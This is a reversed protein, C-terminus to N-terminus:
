AITPLPTRSIEKETLKTNPALMLELASEPTLSDKKKANEMWLFLALYQNLHKTSVGKYQELFRRFRGHFANINNIHYPGKVVPVTRHKSGDASSALAKYGCPQNTFYKKMAHSEDTLVLTEDSIHGDFVQSLISTTLAGRHTVVGSFGKEREAVCLVCAKDKSLSSRNDTGRKYAHRPMTFDKSKKHNGKYSVRVFMEDIEAMGSIEDSFQQNVMANLLKHRWSFATPVAIKCQDACYHLSRGELTCLIFKKWTDASKRSYALATDSVSSFVTGCEKCRYKQHGKGDKGNKRIATSGCKKCTKIEADSTLSHVSADENGSRSLLAFIQDAVAQLDAKKLANLDNLIDDLLEQTGLKKM